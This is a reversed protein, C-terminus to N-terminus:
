RAVGLGPVWPATIDLPEDAFPQKFIRRSRDPGGGIFHNQIRILFAAIEEAEEANLGFFGKHVRWSFVAHRLANVVFFLALVMPLLIVEQQVFDDYPYLAFWTGVTIVGRSIISKLQISSQLLMLEVISKNRWRYPSGGVMTPLIYSVALFIMNLVINIIIFIFVFGSLIFISSSSFFLLLSSALIHRIALSVFITIIIYNPDRKRLTGLNAFIVKYLYQDGFSTIFLLIFLFSISAIEGYREENFLYMLVVLRLANSTFFLVNMIKAQM